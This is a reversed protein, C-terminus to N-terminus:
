GTELITPLRRPHPASLAARRPAPWGWSFNSPHGPSCSQWSAERRRTVRTTKTGSDRPRTKTSIMTRTTAACSLVREQREREIKVARGGRSTFSRCSSIEGRRGSERVRVHFRKIAEGRFIRRWGRALGPSERELRM